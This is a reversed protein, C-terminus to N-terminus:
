LDEGSREALASDIESQVASLYRSTERANLRKALECAQRYAVSAASRETKGVHRRDWRRVIRRVCRLREDIACVQKVSWDVEMVAVHEYQGWCSSPMKASSVRVIFRSRDITNM